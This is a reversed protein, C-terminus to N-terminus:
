NIDSQHPSPPVIDEADPGTVSFSAPRPIRVHLGADAAGESHASLGTGKDGCDIGSGLAPQIYFISERVRRFSLAGVVLLTTPYIILDNASPAFLDALPAGMGIVAMWAVVALLWVPRFHWTYSDGVVQHVVEEPTPRRFSYATLRGLFAMLGLILLLIGVFVSKIALGWGILGFIGGFGLPILILGSLTM